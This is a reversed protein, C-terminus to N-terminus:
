RLDSITLLVTIQLAVSIEIVILEVFFLILVQLIPTICAWSDTELFVTILM